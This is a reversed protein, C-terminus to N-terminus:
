IYKQGIVTLKFEFMLRISSKLTCSEPLLSDPMWATCQAALGKQHLLEHAEEQRILQPERHWSTATTVIIGGTAQVMGGKKIQLQLFCCIPFFFTFTLARSKFNIREESSVMASKIGLGINRPIVSNSTRIECTHPVVLQAAQRPSYRFLKSEM